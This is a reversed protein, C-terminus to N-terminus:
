PAHKDSYPNLYFNLGNKNYVPIQGPYLSVLWVSGNNEIVSIVSSAENLQPKKYIDIKRIIPLDNLIFIQKQLNLNIYINTKRLGFSDPQTKEFVLLDNTSLWYISIFESEFEQYSSKREDVDYFNLFNSEQLIAVKMDPSVSLLNGSPLVHSSLKNGNKNYIDIKQNKLLSYFNDTGFIWGASQIEEKADIERREDKEIDLIAIKEGIPYLVEKSISHLQPKQHSIDIEKESLSNFDFIKWSQGNSFLSVGGDNISCEKIESTKIPDLTFAHYFGDKNAFFLKGSFWGSCLVTGQTDVTNTSYAAEEQLNKIDKEITPSLPESTQAIQNLSLRFIIFLIIVFIFFVLLFKYHKKATVLIERARDTVKKEEEM